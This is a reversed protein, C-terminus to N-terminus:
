DGGGIRLLLGAALFVSAALLMDPTVAFLRILCITTWIFLGYGIFLFATRPLRAPEPDEGAVAAYYRETVRRWFFEFCLLTAVFIGFNVLQVIPIELSVSPRTLRLTAGLILPYLPSWTGNVATAWDGRMWADGQDLYNIGDESMSEAMIGSASNVAALLLAVGRAVFLPGNRTRLPQPM